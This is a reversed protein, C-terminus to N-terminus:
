DTSVAVVVENRRRFPLTWPPDYFWAMTDSAPHFDSGRLADLLEETKAAVTAPSRDGSFRLVAYTEGPVEVLEVREDDPQPLLEMSWKSPMFFRIVSNGDAGRTQTVPATMAIKESQQAVPATMAIKTQRRNGGFIYNALRRFGANRAAEEEAAVTTQAAIRPGYRRIEIQASGSGILAERVFMPEETGTRVGVLAGLGEAVQGATDTIKSLM